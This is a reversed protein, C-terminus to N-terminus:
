VSKGYALTKLPFKCMDKSILVSCYNEWKAYAGEKPKKTGMVMTGYEIQESYINTKKQQLYM